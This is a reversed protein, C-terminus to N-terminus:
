APICSIVQTRVSEHDISRDSSDRDGSSYLIFVSRVVVRVAAMGTEAAAARWGLLGVGSEHFGDDVTRLGLPPRGGRLLRPGFRGSIRISRGAVERAGGDTRDHDVGRDEQYGASCEQVPGVARGREKRRVTPCSARRPDAPRRGSPVDSFIVTVGWGSGRCRASATSAARGSAATPGSWMTDITVM